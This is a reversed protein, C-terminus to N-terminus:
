LKSKERMKQIDKLREELLATVHYNNKSLKLANQLQKQAKDFIGNLIFYEARARHVGLINGALGHVEALLYWVYDDKPRIRSYRALVEECLAYNGSEMLMEAYRVTLPHNNPHRTLLNDLATLAKPYNDAAAEIDAAAILYAIRNPDEKLLPALMDRARDLQDTQTLALVLGYRSAKHSISEGNVESMFRKVSEGPTAQHLLQVRARMLHFELNDAFQRAPYKSARNRSDAVRSETVPHTLLFEPPRRSYRTARLMREFMEPAANPDMQAGIMTLMGIRDAEQENQRSFRLKSDLAAAQTATLAAIGADGGATAALVLSALMAAMTPISANKQQELGRAFHRQSLHALEHALVSALQHESEAYLLLGTHVGVVGGPVAFANLTPNKAVVLELRRDKLQSHLALKNLLQELYDYLLPDSSTPVRSRYMRLWTQGLEYEKAPSVLASSSDGLEPLDIQASIVSFSTSSIACFAFLRITHRIMMQVITQVIPIVSQVIVKVKLLQGSQSELRM